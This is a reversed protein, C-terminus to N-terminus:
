FFCEQLRRTILYFSFNHHRAVHFTLNIKLGCQSAIKKLTNNCSGNTPVPFLKNGKGCNKYKEIIWKPVELLRISSDTNTKQRRTIIWLHDDFSVKLNEKTLNKVDSYSLGTFCSFVFLDRVLEQHTSKMKAHVLMELESKNLFGRDKYELSILYGAFPNISLLGANRAISIIHKIAIMYMWITNNSCARKTRLYHEFANIFDLNLERLFFDNRHYEQRIFNEMHKYLTCYKSYTGWVRNYGVKKSFELNHRKFLTLLTNEKVNLGLYANKVKDANVFGEAQMIKQYHKSIDARIQDLVRNTNTANMSKGTLRGSKTDWLGPLVSMKCSFQRVTGDITIRGMVPVTGDSKPNNRKLYFLIKFTSRM